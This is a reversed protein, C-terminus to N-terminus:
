YVEVVGSYAKLKSLTKVFESESLFRNTPLDYKGQNCLPFDAIVFTNTDHGKLWFAYLFFAPIELLRVLVDQGAYEAESADIQKILKYIEEPLRSISFEVVKLQGDEQLLSQAYAKPTGDLMIQHYWYGVNKALSDVSDTEKVSCSYIKWLSFTEALQVNKGSFKSDDIDIFNGIKEPLIRLSNEDLLDAKIM